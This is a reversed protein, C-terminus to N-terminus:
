KLKTSQKNNTQYYQKGRKETTQRSLPPRRLSTRWVPKFTLKFKLIIENSMLNWWSMADLHRFQETKMKCNKFKQINQCNGHMEKVGRKGQHLDRGPWMAPVKITPIMLRFTRYRSHHPQMHEPPIISCLEEEIRNWTVNMWMSHLCTPNWLKEPCLWVLSLETLSSKVRCLVQCQKRHQIHRLQSHILPPQWPLHGRLTQSRAAWSSSPLRSEVPM